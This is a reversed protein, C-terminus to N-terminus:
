NWAEWTRLTLQGRDIDVFTRGSLWNGSNIYTGSALQAVEANHTHGFIVADFGRQLLMEAADHCYSVKTLEDGARKRRHRDLKTALSTWLKYTDKHLFLAAGALRTAFTYLEPHGSFFPDYLHGHEIRIRAEGSRLNLFPSLQLSLVNDLFHELVIDHNGVVYYVAGGAAQIRRLRSMVPLSASVLRSFSTQLMDFGDGDICLSAGIDAAYDLFSLLRVPATSVPNGLHLDSIVLLRDEDIDLNV